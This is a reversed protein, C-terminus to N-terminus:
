RASFEEECGQIDITEGTESSDELLSWAERYGEYKSDLCHTSLSVSKKGLIEEEPIIYWADEYVVYAALFDFSGRAYPRSSSCVSCLYGKDLGEALAFTTCKVQVAVFRGPRGVVFDYSQTDGWPKSIAIGREAARAMFIMEAWEGRKKKDIIKPERKTMWRGEFYFFAGAAFSASM